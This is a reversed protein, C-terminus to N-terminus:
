NCYKQGFHKHPEHTSNMVSSLRISNIKTTKPFGNVQNQIQDIKHSLPNFKNSLAKEPNRLFQTLNFTTNDDKKTYMM